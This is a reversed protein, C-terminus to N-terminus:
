TLQEASPTFTIATVEAPINVLVFEADDKVSRAEIADKNPHQTDGSALLHTAYVAVVNYRLKSPIANEVNVKGIEFLIPVTTTDFKFINAIVFPPEASM